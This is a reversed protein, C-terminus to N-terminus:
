LEHMCTMRRETHQKVILDDMIHCSVIHYSITHNYFVIRKCLKRYHQRFKCHLVYINEKVNLYLYRHFYIASDYLKYVYCFCQSSFIDFLHGVVPPKHNAVKAEEQTKGSNFPTVTTSLHEVNAGPVITQCFPIRCKLNSIGRGMQKPKIGASPIHKMSLGLPQNSPKCVLCSSSVAWHLHFQRSKSSTM